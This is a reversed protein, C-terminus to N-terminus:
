FSTFVIGCYKRSTDVRTSTLRFNDIRLKAFIKKSGSNFRSGTSFLGVISISQSPGPLSCDGRRSGQAENQFRLSHELLAREQKLVALM